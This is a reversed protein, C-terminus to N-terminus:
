VLLTVRYSYEGLTEADEFNKKWQKVAEDDEVDRKDVVLELVDAEDIGKVTRAVERLSELDGINGEEVWLLRQVRESFDLVRDDGVGYKFQFRIIAQASIEIARPPLPYFKPKGNLPFNLRAAWRSLELAHYNQRAIPRTRLPIGGNAEILLIPRLILPLNHKRAIERARPAGFTAWPSSVGYFVEFTVPSTQAAM